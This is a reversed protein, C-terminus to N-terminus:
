KIITKLFLEIYIPDVAYMGNPLITWPIEGNFNEIKYDVHEIM